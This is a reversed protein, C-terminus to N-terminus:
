SYTLAGNVKPFGLMEASSGSRPCSSAPGEPSPSPASPAVLPPSPLTPPTPHASCRSQPWVTNGLSQPRHQVSGATKRRRRHRICTTMLAAPASWDEPHSSAVNRVPGRGETSDVAHSPDPWAATASCIWARWPYPLRPSSCEMSGSPRHLVPPKLKWGSECIRGGGAPWPPVRHACGDALATCTTWQKSLWPECGQAGEATDPSKFLRGTCSLSGKNAPATLMWAGQM